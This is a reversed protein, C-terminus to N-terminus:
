VDRPSVICKRLSELRKCLIRERETLGTRADAISAWELIATIEDKTFEALVARM